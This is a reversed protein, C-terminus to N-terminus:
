KDQDGVKTTDRAREAQRLESAEEPHAMDTGAYVAWASWGRVILNIRMKYQKTEVVVRVGPLTEDKFPTGVVEAKGERKKMEDVFPGLLWNAPLPLPLGFHIVGYATKHSPSVWTQHTHENTKEIPAAAWGAPPAVVAELAENPTPATLAAQAAVTQTTPAPAQYAPLNSYQSQCGALLGALALVIPARRTM